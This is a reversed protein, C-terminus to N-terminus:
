VAFTTDAMLKMTNSQPRKLRYTCQSSFIAILYRMWSMSCGIKCIGFKLKGLRLHQLTNKEKKYLLNYQCKRTYKSISKFYFDVFFINLIWLIPPQILQVLYLDFMIKNEFNNRKITKQLLSFLDLQNLTKLVFIKLFTVQVSSAVYVQPWYRGWAAHRFIQHGWRGWGCGRFPLIFWSKPRTRHRPNLSTKSHHSIRRSWVRLLM